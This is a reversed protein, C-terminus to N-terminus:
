ESVVQGRIEGAPFEPTHVAIYLEGAKLAAALEPTLPQDADGSSWAGAAVWTNAGASVFSLDRVVPGNAGAAGNHFHAAAIANLGSVTIRYSVATGTQDLAVTATGSAATTVPDPAIQAGDLAATFRTGAEGDVYTGSLGFDESFLFLDAFEVEGDKNLDYVRRWESSATTSGFYDAFLFFDLYNIKGDGNFDGVLFRNDAADFLIPIVVRGSVVPASANGAGDIGKIMYVYSRGNEATLDEYATADNPVEALMQEDLGYFARRWIQYGVVNNGNVFTGGSTFDTGIPTQPVWGNEGLEWSVAVVPGDTLAVAAAFDTVPAPPTNDQGAAPTGSPTLQASAPSTGVLLASLGLLALGAFLGKKGRSM